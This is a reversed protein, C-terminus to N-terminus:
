IKAWGIFILSPRFGVFTPLYLGWVNIVWKGNLTKINNKIM